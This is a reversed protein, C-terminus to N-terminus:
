AASNAIACCVDAVVQVPHQQDDVLTQQLGDGGISM